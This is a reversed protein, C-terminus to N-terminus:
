IQSSTLPNTMMGCFFFGGVRTVIPWKTGVFLRKFNTVSFKNKRVLIHFNNTLFLVSITIQSWPNKKIFQLILFKAIKKLLNAINTFNVSSFCM